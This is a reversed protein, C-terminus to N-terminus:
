SGSGQRKEGAKDRGEKIRLPSTAGPSPTRRYSPSAQDEIGEQIAPLAPPRQYRQKRLVVSESTIRRQPAVSKQEDETTARQSNLAEEKCVRWGALDARSFGKVSILSREPDVDYPVNTIKVEGTIAMKEILSCYERATKIPLLANLVNSGNYNMYSFLPFIPNEYWEKDPGKNSFDNGQSNRQVIACINKVKTTLDPTNYGVLAIFPANEVITDYGDLKSMSVIRPCNQVLEVFFDARESDIVSIDNGATLNIRINPYNKNLYIIARTVAKDRLAAKEEHSKHSRYMPADFRDDGAFSDIIRILNWIRVDKATYTSKSEEGDAHARTSVAPKSLM